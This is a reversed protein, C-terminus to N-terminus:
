RPRCRPACSAFVSAPQWSLLATLQVWIERRPIWGPLSQGSPGFEGYLSGLIEWVQAAIVLFGRGLSDIRM